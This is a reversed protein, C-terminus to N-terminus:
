PCMTVRELRTGPVREFRTLFPDSNSKTKFWNWEQPKPFANRFISRTRSAGRHGTGSHETGRHGTGSHETGRHGTGSHETGRHGTGSHVAQSISKAGGPGTTPPGLAHARTSIPDALVPANHSFKTAPAVFPIGGRRAAGQTHHM